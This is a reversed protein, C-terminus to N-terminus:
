GSGALTRFTISYRLADGPPRSPGSLPYASRPEVILSRRDWAAGDKRRFRFAGPSLLSVGGGEEFHPKDRDWGIGAGSRNQNILVQVFSVAPRTCRAARM